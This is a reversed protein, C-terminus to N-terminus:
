DWLAFFWKHFLGMAEDFKKDVEKQKADYKKRWVPDKFNYYNQDGVISAYDCEWRNRLEFGDIMKALIKNWEKVSKLGAPYGIKKKRLLRLMGPMTELFWGDISWVDSDAWGRWMRQWKWKIERPLNLFTQWWRLPAYQWAFLRKM